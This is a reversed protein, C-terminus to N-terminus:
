RVGPQAVHEGAPREAAPGAPHRLPRFMAILGAVARGIM